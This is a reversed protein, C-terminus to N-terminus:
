QARREPLPHRGAPAPPGKGAPAPELAADIMATWRMVSKTQASLRGKRQEKSWGLRNMTDVLARQSAELMADTPHRMAEIAARAECLRSAREAAELEDWEIARMHMGAKTMYRGRGDDDPQVERWWGNEAYVGRAVKEVMDRM